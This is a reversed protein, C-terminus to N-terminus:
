IWPVFQLHLSIVLAQLFEQVLGWVFGFGWVFRFGWFVLGRFTDGERQGRLCLSTRRLGERWETASRWRMERIDCSAQRGTRALRSRAQEGQLKFRRETHEKRGEKRGQTKLIMMRVDERAMILRRERM